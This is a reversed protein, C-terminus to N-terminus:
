VSRKIEEEREQWEKLEMEEMMRLRKEFSEQDTVKPLMAEWARKARAREIMELEAMGAPLGMGYTLTALALLEPPAANAPVIYEPSYPDTQAESERYMTQVAITRTPPTIPRDMAPQISQVPKRAYVIQGGLTPMYPIIPRRFYKYRNTGDVEALGKHVTRDEGIGEPLKHARFSYQSPPYHRLASFMNEYLPNIIKGRQETDDHHVDHTQAKLIAKVHDKRSSVSYVPDYLYDHPRNKAAM